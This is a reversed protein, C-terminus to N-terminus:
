ERFIKKVQETYAIWRTLSDNGIIKPEKRVAVIVTIIGPPPTPLRDNLGGPFLIPAVTL